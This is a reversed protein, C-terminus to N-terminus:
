DGVEQAASSRFALAKKCRHSKSSLLPVVLENVHHAQRISKAQTKNSMGSILAILYSEIWQLVFSALRSQKFM